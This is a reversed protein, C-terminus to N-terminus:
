EEVPLTGRLADRGPMDHLDNIPRWSAAFDTKYYSDLRQGLNALVIALLVGICLTSIAVVASRLDKTIM